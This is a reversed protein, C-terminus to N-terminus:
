YNKSFIYSKSEIFVCFGGKCLARIYYITSNQCAFNLNKLFAISLSTNKHYFANDYVRHHPITHLVDGRLSNGTPALCPRFRASSVTSRNGHFSQITASPFERSLTLIHYCRFPMRFSSSSHYRPFM